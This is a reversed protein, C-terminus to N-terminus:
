VENNSPDSLRRRMPNRGRTPGTALSRYPALRSRTSPVSRVAGSVAFLFVFPSFFLPETLLSGFLVSFLLFKHRMMIRQRYTLYLLVVAWLWGTSYILMVIGNTQGRDTQIKTDVGFVNGAALEQYKQNNFGIGFPHALAVAVGNQTDFSRALYSGERSGSIKDNTLTFAFMGYSAILPIVIIFMALRRRLPLDNFITYYAIQLGALVVGTTSLTLLIGVIAPVAWKKRGYFLFYHLAINLYMQYVGPEWFLGQSRHIGLYKESRGFFTYLLHYSGIEPSVSFLPFATTVIAWNAFGHGLLFILVAGFTRGFDANRLIVYNLTMFASAIMNFRIMVYRLDDLNRLMALCYLLYISFLVLAPFLRGSIRWRVRALMVFQLLATTITLIYINYYQVGGSNVISILLTAFLLWDIQRGRDAPSHRQGPRNSRLTEIM